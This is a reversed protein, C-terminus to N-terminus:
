GADCPRGGIVPHDDPSHDPDDGGVSLPDLFVRPRVSRSKGSGSRRLKEIM